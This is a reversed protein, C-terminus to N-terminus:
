HIGFRDLLEFNIAGERIPPVYLTALGLDVRPLDRVATRVITPKSVPLLAAQYATVEHEAGYFGTLVETLVRVNKEPQPRRSFSTIGICGVQWLVLMSTVDPQYRRLLFDTAELSQCGYHAPDIMLDAILCDQASVGPLMRARYGEARAIRLCRHAVEVYVGPHGEFSVCVHLGARVNSLIVEAMQDYTIMRDKGEEYLDDLCESRKANKIIWDATLPDGAGYLVV